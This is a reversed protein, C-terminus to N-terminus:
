DRFQGVQALKAYDACCVYVYGTKTGGGYWDGYRDGRESDHWWGLKDILMRAAREHNQECGLRYDASVTISGAEATAKYRSGRSNTPGLFRTEISQM